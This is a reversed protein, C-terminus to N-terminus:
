KVIRGDRKLPVEGCLVVSVNDTGGQSIAHKAWSTATEVDVMQRGVDPGEWQNMESGSWLGDSALVVREGGKLQFAAVDAHGVVKRSLDEDRDLRIASNRRYPKHGTEDAIIGMSGYAIAQALRQGGSRLGDRYDEEKLGGDRWAFEALTHDRTIQRFGNSDVVFIRSDGIHLRVATGSVRHIDVWALTSGPSGASKGPFRRMMKEHLEFASRRMEAPDTQPPVSILAQVIEESVARGDAHGGMGDAVVMRIFEQPWDVLETRCPQQERLYEAVVGETGAKQIILYNDQNEDRHGCLSTGAAVLPTQLPSHGRLWDIIRSWM